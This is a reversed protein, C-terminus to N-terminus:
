FYIMPIAKPVVKITFPTIPGSEGDIGIEDHCGDYPELTIKKVRFYFPGDKPSTNLVHTGKPVLSFLSLTQRRSSNPLIIVDLYGNDLKALPTIMLAKGFYKNENYGICIDIDIQMTNADSDDFYLTLKIKRADKRIIQYLAAIDYRYGGFFRLSEATKGTISTYGLINSFM